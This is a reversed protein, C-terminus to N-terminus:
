KKTANQGQSRQEGGRGKKTTQDDVCQVTLPKVWKGVVANNLSSLLTDKSSNHLDLLTNDM